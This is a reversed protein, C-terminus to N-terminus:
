DMVEYNIFKKSSSRARRLITTTSINLVISAESASTYLIGDIKVKQAQKTKRKRRIPILTIDEYLYNSYKINTSNLRNYITKHPIKLKSSADLISVYRIGDIYFPIAQVGGRKGLNIDRLKQKTQESVKFLSDGGTTCNLGENFTNYFSIYYIERDNLEEPKCEELIVKEILNWSYKKYASHLKTITELKDSIFCKKSDKKHETFRKEINVSQGIYNKGSPFKLMYIGCTMIVYM